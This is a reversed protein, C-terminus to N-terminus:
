RYGTQAINREFFQVPPFDLKIYKVLTIFYTVFTTSNSNQHESICITTNVHIIKTKMPFSITGFCYLVFMLLGFLVNFRKEHDFCDLQTATM